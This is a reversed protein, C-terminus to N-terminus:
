DSRLLPGLGSARKVQKNLAYRLVPTRVFLTAETRARTIGTYVLERSLLRGSHDGIAVAIRDFESGQSKHITMAFTTEHPPLRAPSVYVVLRLDPSFRADGAPLADPGPFAVVVSEGGEADRRAVVLGVDGNALGTAADNRTV